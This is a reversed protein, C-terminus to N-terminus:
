EDFRFDVFYVITAFCLLVAAGNQASNIRSRFVTTRVRDANEAYSKRFECPSRRFICAVQAWRM